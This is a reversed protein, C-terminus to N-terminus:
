LQDATAHPHGVMVHDAEVATEEKAVRQKELVVVVQAQVRMEVKRTRDVLIREGSENRLVFEVTKNHGVVLLHARHGRQEVGDSAPQSLRLVGDGVLLHGLHRAYEHPPRARLGAVALQVAKLEEVVELEGREREEAVLGIQIVELIQVADSAEVVLPPAIRRNVCKIHECHDFQISHMSELYSISLM